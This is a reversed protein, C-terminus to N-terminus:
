RLSPSRSGPPPSGGNRGGFRAGLAGGAACAGSVLVFFAVLGFALNAALSTQGNLSEAIQPNQKAVQQLFQDGALLIVALLIAGMTLATLLGTIWGLRAGGSITLGSGTIRRYLAVGCWGAGLASILFLLDAIGIMQLAVTVLSILVFAAM